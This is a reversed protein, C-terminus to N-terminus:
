VSPRGDDLVGVSTAVSGEVLELFELIVIFCSENEAIIPVRVASMRNETVDPQAFPNDVISSRSEDSGIERNLTVEIENISYPLSSSSVRNLFSRLSLSQGKFELRFALSSFADSAGISRGEALSFLDGSAAGEGPVSSERQISVFESIGSDFLALLLSEMIKSQRHVREIADTNPGVNEYESFGYRSEEPLKVGSSIAMSRTDDVYKAVMFFADNRSAPAQGFFLDRDYTNLNLSAQIERFEELLRGYNRDLAQVNAKTPAPSRKIFLELQRHKNAYLEKLVSLEEMDQSTYWMGGVTGALLLCLIAYFFPNRKFWNM